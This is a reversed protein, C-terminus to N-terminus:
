TSEGTIPIPRIKLGGAVQALEDVSLETIDMDMNVAEADFQTPKEDGNRNTTKM